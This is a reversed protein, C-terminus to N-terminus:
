DRIISPHLGVTDDRMRFAGPAIMKM